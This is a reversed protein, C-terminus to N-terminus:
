RREDEQGGTTRAVRLVHIEDLFKQEERSASESWAEYRRARLKEIVRHARSAETHAHDAEIARDFARMEETAAAVAAGRLGERHLYREKLMRADEARGIEVTPEAARHYADELAKRRHEAERAEAIRTFLVGRAERRQAERVREVRALRFVFRRV